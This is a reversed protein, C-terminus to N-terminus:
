GDTLFRGLYQAVARVASMTSPYDMRTPGVVGLAARGDALGVYSSAVLSTSALNAFPNEHGIRVTVEDPARTAEGLLHLLVVNEELAELVPRVTTEFQDGFRGLNPVGGVAVRASADAALMELLATVVPTGAPRLHPPLEGLLRPLADVAATPALGLVAANLRGRLEVVDSDPLAHIEVSRQEVHGSSMILVIMAREVSLQVLEIHRIQAATTAPYQVIAVQRTIQALLRVTRRVVDDLDIAGEMFTAIARREALSLPKVTALRDVFLRYGKDTPVRGASTHPQVIYGEDELVAMDNRVTAPSVKLGHREVLARSGVPEKSSVYDTVIARLVDLKRDDLRHDFRNDLM